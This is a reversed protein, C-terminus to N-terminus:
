SAIIRWGIKSAQIQIQHLTIHQKPLAPDRTNTPPITPLFINQQLLERDIM